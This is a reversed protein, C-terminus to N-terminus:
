NIFNWTINYYTFRGPFEINERVEYPNALANQFVYNFQFDKIRFAVKINIVLEQGLEEKEYGDYLGTFLLETYGIFHILRQRWFLHLEMGSFVQWDPQYVPKQGLEDEVFHWSAGSSLRLFDKLKLRQKATATFFDTDINEPAFTIVPAPNTAVSQRWEIGDSIHGGVLTASLANDLSGYEFVVAGSLQGEPVLSPNGEDAYSASSLGYLNAQDFRKHLEHLSPAIEVYGVSVSFYRDATETVFQGSFGPLLGFREVMHGFLGLAYRAGEGMRAIKLAIEGDLREFSSVGQDYELYGGELNAKFINNGSVWERGVFLRHGTINFRTKIPINTYSGQRLHQYGVVNRVTGSDNQFELFLRAKRDFRERTIALGTLNQRVGFFGDRNYLHGTMGLGSTSGLPFFLDGFYHYSDDNRGLSIGDADRYGVSMDVRRGRKFLKSFSGRTYSYDFSGQDAKFSTVPQYDDPKEPKTIITAIAERGGFLMGAPGPLIFIDHDLATPYDNFDNMGDPEPMHEFPELEFDSVLYNLRGGSLGFPRVLTRMPTVQSEQVTFSPDSIFYGGADHFFARRVQEGVNLRQSAFYTILSDSFSLSPKREPRSKNFEEYRKEFSDLISDLRLSDRLLLQAASDATQFSDSSDPLLVDTSDAAISVAPVLLLFILFFNKM